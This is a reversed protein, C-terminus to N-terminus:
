NLLFLPYVTSESKELTVPRETSTIPPVFDECLDAVAGYISLQNVSVLSRFILEVNDYDRRFHISLKGGRKGPEENWHVPRM